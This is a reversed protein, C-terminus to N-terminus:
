SKIIGVNITKVLGRGAKQRSMVNAPKADFQAQGNNTDQQM